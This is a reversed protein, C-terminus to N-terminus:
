YIELCYEPHGDPYTGEQAQKVIENGSNEIARLAAAIQQKLNLRFCEKLMAAGLEETSGAPIELLRALIGLCTKEDTQALQKAMASMFVVGATDRGTVKGELLEKGVMQNAARELSEVKAAANEPVQRLTGRFSALLSAEREATQLNEIIEIKEAIQQRNPANDLGASLLSVLEERLTKVAFDPLNVVRAPDFGEPTQGSPYWQGSGDAKFAILSGDDAARYFRGPMRNEPKVSEFCQAVKWADEATEPSEAVYLRLWALYKKWALPSEPM